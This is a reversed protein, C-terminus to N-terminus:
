KQITVEGALVTQKAGDPTTLILNGGEDVSTAAGEKFTDRWQVRVNRGLTELRSAWEDTPSHGARIQAYRRDFDRLIGALLWGRDFTRGTECYLSTATSAIEPTLAPTSNVNLGIGLVVHDVVGRTITSEVLIGCVKRGALKVDNPWKITTDLGSAESVASSVSLAAAMNMYPVHASEPTLVISFTLDKGPEARWSRDFRGRGAEQEEAVIVMGERAGLVVRNRAENMTSDIKEFVLIDRGILCGELLDAAREIERITMGNQESLWRRM